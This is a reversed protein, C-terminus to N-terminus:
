AALLATLDGASSLPPAGLRHRRPSDRAWRAARELARAGMRRRPDGPYRRLEDALPVRRPPVRARRAGCRDVRFGYRAPRARRAPHSPETPLPHTHLASRAGACGRHAREVDVAAHALSGGGFGALLRVAAPRWELAAARPM